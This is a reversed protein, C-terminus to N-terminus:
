ATESSDDLEQLAITMLSDDLEQLATTMLSDDLEQLATTMLSHDLEQLATTMSSDDLPSQLLSHMLEGSVSVVRCTDWSSPVKHSGDRM